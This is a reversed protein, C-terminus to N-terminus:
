KEGALISAVANKAMQEGTVKVFNVDTKVSIEGRKLKGDIITKIGSNYENILKYDEKSCGIIITKAYIPISDLCKEVVNNIMKNNLEVSGFYSNKLAIGISESIIGQMERAKEGLELGVGEIISQIEGVTKQNNELAIQEGKIKGYDLGEQYGAKYGADTHFKIDTNLQEELALKKENLEVIQEEFGGNGRVLIEQRMSGVDTLLISKIKGDQITESDKEM